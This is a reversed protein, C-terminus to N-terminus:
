PSYYLYMFSSRDLMWQLGLDDSIEDNPSFPLAISAFACGYGLGGFSFCVGSCLPIEKRELFPACVFFSIGCEEGSLLYLLLKFWIWSRSFFLSKM